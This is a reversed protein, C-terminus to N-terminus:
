ESSHGSLTIKPLLQFLNIDARAGARAWSSGWGTGVAGYALARGGNLRLEGARGYTGSLRLSTGASARLERM